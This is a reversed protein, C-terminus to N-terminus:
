SQEVTTEVHTTSAPEAAAPDAVEVTTEDKAPTEVSVETTPDGEPTQETMSGGHGLQDGALRASFGEGALWSALWEVQESTLTGPKISPGDWDEEAAIGLQIAANLAAKAGDYDTATRARLLGELYEVHSAHNRIFCDSGRGAADLLQTAVEVQRAPPIAIFWAVFEEPTAQVAPDETPGRQFLAERADPRTVTGM